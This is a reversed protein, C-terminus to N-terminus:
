IEDRQTGVLELLVVCDALEDMSARTDPNYLVGGWVLDTERAQEFDAMLAQPTADPPNLNAIAELILSCKQQLELLKERERRFAAPVLILVEIVIISLFVWLVIRWSLRATFVRPWAGFRSSM